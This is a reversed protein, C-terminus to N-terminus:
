PWMPMSIEPDPFEPASPDYSDQEEDDWQHTRVTGEATYYRVTVTQGDNAYQWLRGNLPLGEVIIWESFARRRRVREAM